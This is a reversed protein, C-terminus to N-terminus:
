RGYGLPVALIAGLVFGAAHATLDIGPVLLDIGLNLLLTILIGRLLVSDEPGRRRRASVLAAGLLGFIAGSAGVAVSDPSQFFASLANSGIGSGFYVLLMRWSSARQELLSGLIWLAFMNFGIHVLSAHLFLAAFDRWLSNQSATLVGGDEVLAQDSIPGTLGHQVLVFVAATIAILLLTVWPRSRRPPSPTPEPDWLDVEDM